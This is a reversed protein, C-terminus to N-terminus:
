LTIGYRDALWAEIAARDTPWNDLDTIQYILIAQIAINSFIGDDVGILVPDNVSYDLVTGVSYDSEGSSDGNIYVHAEHTAFIDLEATRVEFSDFNASAANTVNVFNSGSDDGVYLAAGWAQVAWGKYTMFNLKSILNNNSDGGTYKAITFVAFPEPLNDAFEGGNMFDDIGDFVVAKYGDITQVDPGADGTQTFDHGNGSQDAWISVSDGDALMLTDAQLDLLLTASAVQPLELGGGGKRRRRLLFAFLNTIAVRARNSGSLDFM